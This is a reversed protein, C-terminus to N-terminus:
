EGGLRFRMGVRISAGLAPFGLVEEYKRNFMNEVNFYATARRHVNYWGSLDFRSYARAYNVPVALAGFDSDPREGIYVSSLQGGWRNGLYGLRATLSNKPRRLLPAGQALVPNFAAQAQLIQSSTHVYGLEVNTRQTPRLHLEAEGGHAFSRNLNVYSCQFTVPDCNFAIQNRFQNNFYTASFAAVKGLNQTIGAEFSRNQEPKLRLNPLTQFTGTVGFSEEFRPEKIGEGYGFRLRTGSLNEGGKFLQFAVNAQPVARDGFSENHVYRVGASAAIRKWTILQEGYIAHNRRLGKTDTVGTAPLFTVFDLTAFQSVFRGNEDEFDYGFVSRAWRRPTYEGQYTIGARNIKNRSDGFCDFFNFVTVDCGRDAVSDNFRYQHNYEYGRLTHRWHAGSNATLELSSLFNNQRTFQDADPAFQPDNNFRFASPLGTRSNYHRARLRLGINRTFALGVNGGQASNSYASNNGEGDTNEQEGFANYDFPGRSGALSAYGHATAFNGGDAGFRLEPIPTRGNASFFQVVSTMADSGYLASETGRVFEIRDFGATPVVGFDFSGGPDNVPVGDVIVKNYRSDGGRVFLSAQSGRQGSTAIIAGPLFRIADSATLPQATQLQQADVVETQRATADSELPTQAATITVTEPRTGIKLQVTSESSGPIRGTYGAFTPALVEIGYDGVPLDFAAIGSSDTNTTAVVRSSDAAFLTVRAGAVVAGQPDTIKVHLRDAAFSAAAFAFFLFFALVNRM